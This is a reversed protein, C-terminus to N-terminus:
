QSPFAAIRANEPSFSPSLNATRSPSIVPSLSRNRRRQNSTSPLSTANVNLGSLFHYKSFLPPSYRLHYPLRSYTTFQFFLPSSIFFKRSSLPFSRERGCPSEKLKWGETLQDCIVLPAKETRYKSSFKMNLTAPALMNGSFSCCSMSSRPSRLLQATDANEHTRFGVKFMFGPSIALSGSGSIGFSQESASFSIRSFISM